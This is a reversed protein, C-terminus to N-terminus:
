RIFFPPFRLVRLFGGVVLKLFTYVSVRWGTGPQRTRWHLLLKQTVRIVPGPFVLTSGRTERQRPPREVAPGVPRKEPLFVQHVSGIITLQMGKRSPFSGTQLDNKKLSKKARVECEWSSGQPETNKSHSKQTHSGGGGKKKQDFWVPLSMGDEHITCALHTKTAPM